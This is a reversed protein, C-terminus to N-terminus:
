FLRAAKRIVRETEEWFGLSTIEAIPMWRVDDADGGAIAEGSIWRAAFDVLTYHHRIDGADDRDISNIVDVLGIIEGTIGTEEALERLATQEVTEGLEQAGGPLSWQGQKPPKSRKILLVHNDKIVIIGVGVM